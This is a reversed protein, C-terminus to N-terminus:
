ESRSGDPFRSRNWLLGQGPKLEQEFKSRLAASATPYLYCLIVTASSLDATLVDAEIFTVKGDLGRSKVEESAVDVQKPDIDIGVCKGAGNKLAAFLLRGDSSGLDYVVDSQSLTVLDFFINVYEPQTPVWGIFKAM